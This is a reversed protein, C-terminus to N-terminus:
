ATTCRTFFGPLAHTICHIENAAHRRDPAADKWGPSMNITPQPCAPCFVALVGPPLTASVAQANRKLARLYTWQRYTAMFERYREQQRLILM